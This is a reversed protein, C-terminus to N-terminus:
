RAAGTRHFGDLLNLFAAFALGAGGFTVPYYKVSADIELSGMDMGSYIDLTGLSMITIAVGGALALCDIAMELRRRAPPSLVESVLDVAIHARTLWLYVIGLWALWILAMVSVEEVWFIASSFVYRLIVQSFALVVLFVVLLGILWGLGRILFSRLGAQM